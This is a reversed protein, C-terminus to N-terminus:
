EGAGAIVADVDDLTTSKREFWFTWLRGLDQASAAEFADLLIEPTVIDWAYEDSVAALADVFAESGIEQRIAEFGVGGKGYTVISHVVPSQVGIPVRAIADQGGNVFGRYPGAVGGLFARRAAEGGDIDRVVAVALVNVLGESLFTYDNSNTGLINAMWQHGLEHYVVFRLSEQEVPELQGDTALQELDFWISGSWSVGLAGDLDAFALDLEGELPVGFWGAYRPVADRAFQELAAVMGPVALSKPLVTEVAVGDVSVSSAVLEDAPAAIMTFERGRKLQVDTHMMSDSLRSPSETGTAVLTITDPHQISVDWSSTTVFTPDGTETPPDLYWGKGREWGAVIPYWNALSWSGDDSNGRFIGFSGASDIPITTTFRIDVTREEGADTKAVPVRVVTPDNVSTEALVDEGDVQVAELEVRGEDYYRANPYLRFPLSSQTTGTINTWVVSLRGELKADDPDFTVDMTYRQAIDAAPRPTQAYAPISPASVAGMSMLIILALLYMRM